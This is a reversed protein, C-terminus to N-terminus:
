KIAKAAYEKALACYKEYDALKVGPPTQHDVAAIYHGRRMAPLLREFEARMADEGNFMTMKDFGGMWYFDPYQQSLAVIDVGAQRELPLIGEIGASILWPVMKAIDGDSDIFVKIGNKKLEPIVRQYCPKLFEDFCDESLMPGNNYSMDEAFTMFDPKIIATLQKVMELQWNVLDDCIEHYWEPTDYFSYLHPEIGLLVRPWWFFGDMTFWTIHGEQQLKAAEELRPRIREIADSPLLWGKERCEIYEERNFVRPAGHTKARPMDGTTHSLWFQYNRDIGFHDYLGITDLSKDLGEGQWFEVTKDWWMAWEIVPLRDDPKKGNFIAQLRERPTM